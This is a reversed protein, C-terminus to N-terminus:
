WWGFVVNIFEEKAIKWNECFINRYNYGENFKKWDYEPVEIEKRIDNCLNFAEELTEKSYKVKGSKWIPKFNQSRDTIVELCNKTKM